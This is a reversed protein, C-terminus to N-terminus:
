QIQNGNQDFRLVTSGGGPAEPRRERPKEGNQFFEKWTQRGGNLGYSDKAANPDFIPNANLYRQWAAEMGQTHKYTNFYADEFQAKDIMNQAAAIAAQAINENVSKPKDIGVTGAMFMKADYDSTSGSGPQRLTPAIRASIAQMEKIDPDYLGKIAGGIQTNSWGGTDTQSNLVRFRQMDGIMGNATKLAEENAAARKEWRKKEAEVLNSKGRSSLAPNDYPSAVPAPLGMNLAQEATIPAQQAEVDQGTESAGLRRGTQGTNPDYAYVGPGEPGNGLTVTTMGKPAAERVERVPKPFAYEAMKGLINDVNSPDNEIADAIIIKTPDGTARLAAATRRAGAIKAANAAQGQQYKQVETLGGLEKLQNGREQLQATDAAARGQMVGGGLAGLLEGFGVKRDHVGALQGVANGAGALMYGGPGMQNQRNVPQSIQQILDNIRSSLGMRDTQTSGPLAAPDTRPPQSPTQGANALTGLGDAFNQSPMFNLLNGFRPDAMPSMASNMWGVSEEETAARNSGFLPVDAGKGQNGLGAKVAPVYKVTEAPLTAEGRKQQQWRGPGANYAALADDWNGGTLDYMQRLYATGGMINNRPDFRDPGLGHQRALENYTDPMMQMLGAAGKPSVAGPRGGSEVRMVSMIIDQPVGFRQSAEDILPEWRMVM